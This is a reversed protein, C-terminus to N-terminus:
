TSIRDRGRAPPSAQRIEIAGLREVVTYRPQETGARIGVLAGLGGLIAAGLEWANAM